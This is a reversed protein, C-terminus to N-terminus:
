SLIIAVLGQLVLYRSGPDIPLGTSDTQHQTPTMKSLIKGMDKIGERCCRALFLNYTELILSLGTM